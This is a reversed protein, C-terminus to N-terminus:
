RISVVRGTPTSIGNVTAQVLQDGSSTNPVVVNVQYLGSGVMGSYLVQAAVGGITVSVSNITPASGSFLQGAAVFPKTPGFGVGFLELVEGAKVPRSNFQFAGSPGVFDYSGGGYAGSGDPTLIVAAVHSPDFLSFSPSATALTVTSTVSGHSNTVVVNVTETRTDDPAQANIQGPSVYWLYAPKGGTTVTVGNLTTPFDGNWTAKSDALDTGYISIWSGTQISTSTSYVPVVSAPFITPALADIVALNVPVDLTGGVGDSLTVKGTYAGPKLGADNVAIAVSVPTTGSAPTVSLWPTSAIASFQTASPKSSVSINQSAPLTGGQRYSFDLSAPSATFQAPASTVNMTVAVSATASGASFTTNGSCRSGATIGSASVGITVTAQYHYLAGEHSALSLGAGPLVSLWGSCQNTTVNNSLTPASQTYTDYTVTVTQTATGGNATASLTLSTPSVTLSAADTNFSWVPSASSAAANRAVVQWHYSGAATIGVAATRTNTTNTLFPPPNASGFYVDYSTASPAAAWSLTVPTAPNTAGDAPSILVPPPPGTALPGGFFIGSVVANTGGAYTVLFTVHGTVRWVLYVGGTFGSLSRTDLVNGSSDLVQVTQQRGGSEWDVFYLAVQHFVHDTINTDITFSTGTYWSAAVRDSPNSAKQLARVDATSVDWTYTSAGSVAPAAYPPNLFADGEVNYGDAGYASQWNGQISTNAEVFSASDAAFGGGNGLLGYVQVSNDETAVYVRGDAVVPGTFHVPTGASDRSANQGTNYIENAINTAQYAHVSGDLPVAWVIATNPDSGNSSLSIAPADDGASLTGISEAATDFAGGRYRYVRMVDDAGWVYLLPNAPNDWFVYSNFLQYCSDEYYSVCPQSGWFSQVAANGSGGIQAPNLVHIMGEKGGVLLLGLSNIYLPGGSGLDLDFENLAASNPDPYAGAVAGDIGFKVVSESLDTASNTGNGTAVYLNGSADTALGRGSQWVGGEGGNPTVNFISTQVSVNSADYGIVWGHYPDLDGACTAFGAYVRGNALTLATRQNHMSPNFTVKGGVNDYANGTVSGTILTPSGAKHGGTRLDLAAIYFAYTNSGNPTAYVAYLVGARVDIVPTSLIGMEPGYAGAPCQGTYLIPVSAGLTTQWLPTSGPKTADFAYVTNHMTALFLVNTATGNVNLAPVYLPQAMVEGDVSYSGVRGFTNPNVNAVTLTTESVNTGSRYNDYQGTSM